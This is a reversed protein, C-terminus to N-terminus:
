VVLHVEGGANADTVDVFKPPAAQFRLGGNTGTLEQADKFIARIDNQVTEQMQQQSRIVLDFRKRDEEFIGDLQVRGMLTLEVDLIFQTGSRPSEEDDEVASGTYM